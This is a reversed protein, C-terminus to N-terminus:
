LKFYLYRGRFFRSPFQMGKIIGDCDTFELVFMRVDIPEFVDVKKQWM